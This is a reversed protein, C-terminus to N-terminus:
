SVQRTLNVDKTLAATIAAQQATIGEIRQATGDLTNVLKGNEKVVKIVNKGAGVYSITSYIIGITLILILIFGTIIMAAQTKSMPNAHRAENEKIRALALAKEEPSLSLELYDKDNIEAGKVYSYGGNPNQMIERYSVGGQFATPERLELTTDNGPFFFRKNEKNGPDIKLQAYVIKRHKCDRSYLLFPYKKKQRFFFAWGLFILLGIVLCGVIAFIVIMWMPIIM